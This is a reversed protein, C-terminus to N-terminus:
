GEETLVIGKELDRDIVISVVGADRLKGRLTSLNVLVTRVDDTADEGWVESYLDKLAIYEGKRRALAALLLFEKPKLRVSQGHHLVKQTTHDLVLGECVVQRLGYAGGMRARRLLAAVRACLVEPRYPKTLYDDGGAELGDVIDESADKVTLFLVPATTAQRIEGCFDLGSGDPLLVDLVILDPACGYLQRRAQELSGATCIRYGCGLLTEANVQMVQADDEILLILPENGM